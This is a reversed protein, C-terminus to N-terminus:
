GLPLGHRPTTRLGEQQGLRRHGVFAAEGGILVTDTSPDFRVAGYWNHSFIPYYEWRLGYDITLKNSVQWQDRAYLAWSSFRLANPNQFQTIKGAHSHVMKWNYTEKAKHRSMVRGAGHSASNLSAANGKGRAVFTPSAMSGPIVGLVGAGAPTAGKRHVILDRGGHREKWAFNHHNEIDLLV